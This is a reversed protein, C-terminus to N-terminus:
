NWQECGALAPMSERGARRALVVDHFAFIMTPMRGPEPEVQADDNVAVPSLGNETKGGAGAVFVFKLALAHDASEGIEDFAAFDFNEADIGDVAEAEVVFARMREVAAIDLGDEIGVKTFLDNGEDPVIALAGADGNGGHACGEARIVGGVREELMGIDDLAAEGHGADVVNAVKHVAHVVVIEIEVIGDIIERIHAIWPEVVLDAGAIDMEARASALPFVAARGIAEGFNKRALADMMREVVPAGFAAM